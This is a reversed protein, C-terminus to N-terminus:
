HDQQHDGHHDDANQGGQDHALLLLQARNCALDPEAGSGYCRARANGSARVDHGSRVDHSM